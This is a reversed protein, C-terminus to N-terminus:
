READGDLYVQAPQGPRVRLLATAFDAVARTAGTLNATESTEYVTVQALTFWALWLVMFVMVLFLGWGMNELRKNEKLKAEDVFHEPEIGEVTKPEKEAPGRFSLGILIVGVVALIVVPVWPMNQDGVTFMM